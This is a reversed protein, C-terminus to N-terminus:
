IILQLNAKFHVFFSFYKKLEIPKLHKLTKYFLHKYTPFNLYYYNEIQQFQYVTELYFLCELSELQYFYSKTHQQYLFIHNKYNPYWDFFQFYFLSLNKLIDGINKKTFHYEHLHEKVISNYNTKFAHQVCCKDFPNLKYVTYKENNKIIDVFGPVTLYAAIPPVILWSFFGGIIWYSEWSWGKVKKFPM